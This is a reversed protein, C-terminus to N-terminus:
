LGPLAKMGMILKVVAAYADARVFQIADFGANNKRYNKELAIRDKLIEVLRDYEAVKEADTMTMHRGWACDLLRAGWSKELGSRWADM